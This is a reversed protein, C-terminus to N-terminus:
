RRILCEFVNVEHRRGNTTDCVQIHVSEVRRHLQQAVGLQAALRHHDAAAGPVLGLRPYVALELIVLQAIIDAAADDGGGSVIAAQDAKKTKKAKPTNEAIPM